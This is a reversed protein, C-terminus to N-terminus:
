GGGEGGFFDSTDPGASKIQVADENAGGDTKDTTRVAARL